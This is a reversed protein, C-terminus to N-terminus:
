APHQQAENSTGQRNLRRLGSEVEERSEAAALKSELLLQQLLQARNLSLVAACLFGFIGLALLSRDVDTLRWAQEPRLVLPVFLIGVLTLAVAFLLIALISWRSLMSHLHEIILSLRSLDRKSKEIREHLSRDDNDGGPLEYAM